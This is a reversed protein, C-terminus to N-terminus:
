TGLVRSMKRNWVGGYVEEPSKLSPFKLPKGMGAELVKKQM